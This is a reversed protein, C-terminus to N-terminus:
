ETSWASFDVKQMKLEDEVDDVSCLKFIASLAFMLITFKCDFPLRLAMVTM